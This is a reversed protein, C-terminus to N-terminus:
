MCCYTLYFFFKMMEKDGYRDMLWTNATVSSFEELFMRMVSDSWTSFQLDIHMSYDPPSSCEKSLNTENQEQFNPRSTPSSSSSSSSSSLLLTSSPSSSSKLNGSALDRDIRTEDQKKEGEAQSGDISGNYNQTQVTSSNNSEAHHLDHVNSTSTVPTQQTSDCGKSIRLTTLEDLSGNFALFRENLFWVRDSLVEVDDIHHTSVLIATSARRLLIDKRVLERTWSDCGSSPEDLLLVKPSGAFALALTLRRKMGGLTM